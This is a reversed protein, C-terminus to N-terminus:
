SALCVRTRLRAKGREGGDMWAVLVVCHEELGELVGFGGEERKEFLATGCIVASRVADLLLGLALLLLLTASLVYQEM